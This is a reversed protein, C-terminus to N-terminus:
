ITLKALSLIMFATWRRGTQDSFRLGIIAEGMWAYYDNFQMM